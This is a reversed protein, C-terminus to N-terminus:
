SSTADSSLAVRGHDSVALDHGLTTLTLLKGCM